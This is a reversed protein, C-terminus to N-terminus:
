SGVVARPCSFLPEDSDLAYVAADTFVAHGGFDIELKAFEFRGNLAEAARSRVTGALLDGLHRSLYWWGIGLVVILAALAAACGILWRRALQRRRRTPLSVAESNM